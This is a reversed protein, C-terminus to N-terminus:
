AGDPRQMLVSDAAPVYGYASFLVGERERYVRIELLYPTLEPRSSTYLTFGAEDNGDGVAFRNAFLSVDRFLFLHHFPPKDVPQRTVGASIFGLEAAREEFTGAHAVLDSVSQQWEEPPHNGPALPMPITDAIEAMLAIEAHYRTEVLATNLVTEAPLLPKQPLAFQGIQVFVLLSSLLNTLFLLWGRSSRWAKRLLPRALATELGAGFVSSLVVLALVAPDLRLDDTWGQALLRELTDAAGPLWLVARGALASALNVAVAIACARIVPVRFVWAIIVTEALLTLAIPWLLIAGFFWPVNALAPTATCTAAAFLLASTHRHRSTVAPM